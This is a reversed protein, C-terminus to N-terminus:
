PAGFNLSADAAASLAGASEYRADPEKALAKTLVSDISEPLLSNVGSAAPPQSNVHAFYIAHRSELPFPVEGTLAEFLVCGLSYIDARHDIERGAIQEPAMYSPTGLSEGTRTLGTDAVLRALGFDSLYAHEIDAASALLINQPKVDRHIIGQEHAADLASAIQRTMSLADPVDLFTQRRIVEHLTPGDVYRMAIYLLGDVDNVRYIPLVNPHEIAAATRAERLFRQRVSNDGSIQPAIVKLAVKRRLNEDVAAYVVGMGGRGLQGVIYYGDIVDGQKAVVLEPAAHPGPSDAELPPPVVPEPEGTLVRKAQAIAAAPAEWRAPWSAPPRPVRNEARWTKVGEDSPQAGLALAVDVDWIYQRREAAIIAAAALNRANSLLPHRAAIGMRLAPSVLLDVHEEDSRAVVARENPVDIQGFASRPIRVVRDRGEQRLLEVQDASV